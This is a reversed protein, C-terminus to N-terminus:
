AAKAEDAEAAPEEEAPPAIRREARLAEVLRTRLADAVEPQERLFDCAKDRGQGIREGDLLYWSGSKELLGHAAGLDVLEGFVNIGSGFRVEFEAERFPPAMKNKVVKVRARTGVSQDGEKIQGIKRIDLRVSAYFKLANGGTTTEPNGSARQPWARLATM